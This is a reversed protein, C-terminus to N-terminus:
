DRRLNLGGLVGLAAGSVVVLLLMFVPSHGVFVGLLLTHQLETVVMSYVLNVSFYAFTAALLLTVALRLQSLAM